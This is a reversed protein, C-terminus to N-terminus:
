GTFFQLLLVVAALLFGGVFLAIGLHRLWTAQLLSRGHAAHAQNGKALAAPNEHQAEQVHALWWARNCFTWTGIDSARVLSRDKPM